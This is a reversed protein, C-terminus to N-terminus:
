GADKKEGTAVIKLLKDQLPRQLMLADEMPTCLFAFNSFREASTRFM